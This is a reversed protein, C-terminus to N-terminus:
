KLLLALLFVQLCLDRLGEAMAVVPGRSEMREWIKHVKARMRVRPCSNERGREGHARKKKLDSTLCILMLKIRISDEKTGERGKCRIGRKEGREM